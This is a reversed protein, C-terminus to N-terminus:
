QPTSWEFQYNDVPIEKEVRLQNMASAKLQEIDEGSAPYLHGVFKQKELDFYVYYKENVLPLKRIWPYETRVNNQRNDYERASEGAEDLAKKMEPSTTPTPSEIPQIKSTHLSKKQMMIFVSVLGIIFIAAIGLIILLPKKSPPNPIQNPLIQVSEQPQINMNNTTSNDNEM